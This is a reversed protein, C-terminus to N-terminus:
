ALRTMSFVQIFDHIFAYEIILGGGLLQVVVSISAWALKIAPLQLLHLHNHSHFLRALSLVRLPDALVLILRILILMEELLLSLYAFLGILPILTLALLSDVLILNTLLSISRILSFFFNM